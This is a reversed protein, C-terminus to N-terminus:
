FVWPGQEEMIPFGGIMAVPEVPARNIEYERGFPDTAKMPDDPFFWRPENGINVLLYRACDALHDDADTDADETGDKYPLNELERYFNECTSFIHM